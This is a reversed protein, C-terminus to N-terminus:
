GKGNNEKVENDAQALMLRGPSCIYAERAHTPPNTFKSRVGAAPRSGNRKLCRRREDSSADRPDNRHPTNTGHHEEEAGCASNKDYEFSPRTSLSAERGTKFCPGLLRVRVCTASNKPADPTALCRTGLTFSVRNRRFSLSNPRFRNNKYKYPRRVLGGTQRRLLPTSSPTHAYFNTGSLHHDIGPCPSALPFEPSLGGRNQRAFRDDSRPM